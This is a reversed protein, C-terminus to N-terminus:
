EAAVPHSRDGPINFPVLATMSVGPNLQTGDMDGNLFLGNEDAAFQRGRADYAYQVGDWFTAPDNRDDSIRLKVICEETGTPMSGTIDPSNYVAQGEAQGCGIGEVRFVFPVTAFRTTSPRPM